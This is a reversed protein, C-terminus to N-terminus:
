LLRTELPCATVTSEDDPEYCGFPIKKRGLAQIVPGYAHANRTGMLVRAEKVKSPDLRGIAIELFQPVVFDADGVKYSHPLVVIRLIGDDDVARTPLSCGAIVLCALSAIATLLTRMHRAGGPFPIKAYLSDQRATVNASNEVIAFRTSSAFCRKWCRMMVEVATLVISVYCGCWALLGLARTFGRGRTLRPGEFDPHELALAESM